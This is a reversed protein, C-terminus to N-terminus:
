DKCSVDVKFLELSSNAVGEVAPFATAAIWFEVGQGVFIGFDGFTNIDLVLGADCRTETEIGPQLTSIAVVEWEHYAVVDKTATKVGSEHCFDAFVAAEGVVDASTM